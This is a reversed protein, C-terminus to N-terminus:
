TEAVNQYRTNFVFLIVSLLLVIESLYFSLVGGIFGFEPILMLCALVSIVAASIQIKARAANNGACTMLECFYMNLFLVVPYASMAQVIVVATLYKSGFILVIYPSTLYLIISILISSILSIFFLKSTTKYLQFATLGVGKRFLRPILIMMVTHFPIFSIYALRYSLSYDAILASDQVLIARDANSGINKSTINLAFPLGEKVFTAIEFFTIKSFNVKLKLAFSTIVVALFNLAFFLIFILNIDVSGVLVISLVLVMRAVLFMFQSLFFFQTNKFHLFSTALDFIRMLIVESFIYLLLTSLGIVSSIPWVIITVILIAPLAIILTLVLALSFVRLAVKEKSESGYKVILNSFGPAIFHIILLAASAIASYLGFESKDLERVLLWFTAFQALISLGKYFVSLLIRM